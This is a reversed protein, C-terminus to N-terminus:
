KYERRRMVSPYRRIKYIVNTSARDERNGTLGERFKAFFFATGRQLERDTQRLSSKIPAGNFPFLLSCRARIHGDYISRQAFQRPGVDPM